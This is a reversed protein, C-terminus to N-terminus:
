RHYYSIERSQIRIVGDRKVKRLKRLIVLRPALFWIHWSILSIMQAENAWPYFIGIACIGLWFLHRHLRRYLALEIHAVPIYGIWPPSFRWGWRRSDPEDVRVLTLRIIVFHVIQISFIGIGTAIAGELRYMALQFLTLILIIFQHSWIFEKRISIKRILQYQYITAKEQEALTGRM